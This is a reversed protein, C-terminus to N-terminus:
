YFIYSCIFYMRFYELVWLWIFAKDTLSIYLIQFSEMHKPFLLQLVVAYFLNLVDLFYNNVQKELM